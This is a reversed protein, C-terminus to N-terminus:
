FLFRVRKCPPYQPIQSVRRLVLPGLMRCVMGLVRRLSALALGSGLPYRFAMARGLVPGLAKGREQAMEQAPDSPLRDVPTYSGRRM